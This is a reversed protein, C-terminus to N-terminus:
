VAGPRAVIVLADTDRPVHQAIIADALEQAAIGPPLAAPASIGHSALILSDKVQLPIASAAPVPLNGLGVVGPHTPLAVPPDRERYLRGSVEGVALWYAREELLEVSALALMVGCTGRLEAHVRELLERPAVQPERLLADAARRALSAALEGSQRGDILALLAGNGDDFHHVVELAGAIRHGYALSGAVGFELKFTM